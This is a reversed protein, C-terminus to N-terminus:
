CAQGERQALRTVAQEFKHGRDIYNEFMDFSACAPSFLVMVRADTQVSYDRAWQWAHTVAEDLSQAMQVELGAQQCAQGIEPGAQGM